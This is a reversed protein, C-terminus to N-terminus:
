PVTKLARALLVRCPIVLHIILEIFQASARELQRGIRAKIEFAGRMALRQAIQAIPQRLAFPEDDNSALDTRALGRQHTMEHFRDVWPPQGGRGDHRGLDLTMIQKAHHRFAEAKGHRALRLALHQAPQLIEKVCFRPLAPAAQQYHVLRLIQGRVRQFLQAHQGIELEAILGQQLYEQKPLRFKPVLQAIRWTQFLQALAHDGSMMEIRHLRALDFGIDDM